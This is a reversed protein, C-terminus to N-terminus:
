AERFHRHFSAFFGEPSIHTEWLRRAARQREEFEADGLSEHFELVRDGIRDVEGAEVWVCYDRWAVDFDLPLVCDTDIFIPIRGMSLTEYLRYSFNGIGRACLVYDSELTNRVYEHRAKMLSRSDGLAGAWFTDRAIFNPELRRDRDVAVLALTRPHEGGLGRTVEVRPGGMLRRISGGLTRAPLGGMTNGCFGVVPRTRKPRPRLDGDLYRVLFDESWAPLAFESPRRRSRILSTRFVTADVPLPETSDAGHFIVPTKGAERCVAVFREGLEVAQEGASEWNQPFVGVDCDTLSTLRLFSSGAEAYRDFRGTDPPSDPNTGWFPALIVAHHTSPSALFSRDSYISFM